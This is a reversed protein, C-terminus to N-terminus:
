DRLKIEALNIKYILGLILRLSKTPRINTIIGGRGRNLDKNMGDIGVSRTSDLENSMGAKTKIDPIVEDTSNLTESSVNQINEGVPSDDGMDIM